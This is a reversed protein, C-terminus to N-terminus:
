SSPDNIPEGRGSLIEDYFRIYGKSLQMEFHDNKLKAVIYRHKWGERDAKLKETPYMSLRM